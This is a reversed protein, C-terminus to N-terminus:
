LLWTEAAALAGTPLTAVGQSTVALKDCEGQSSRHFLMQGEDAEDDRVM